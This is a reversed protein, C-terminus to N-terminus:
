DPQFRVLDDIAVSQKSALSQNAAIGTLISYAGDRYGAARKLPDDSKELSFIDRLMHTDAGGHGGENTQPIEIDQPKQWLKQLILTTPEVVATTAAGKVNRSFNHDDSQGSVYATEVVQLELRGGTGNFAVRYGEWPSYTTLHYSMTAGGQYRILAALDDEITIGEGFVNQDRMYGDGPECDLYLSKLEPDASLDLAFPDQKANPNGTAREYDRYDGRRIANERGYFRLDGLAYVQEPRTDLWWNVLDFHHTSKHVFLGGSNLKQRHWRRFYDAGHRTDLLWEFHVSLVRGIAGSMLVEKVKSNRDAYRYNFTVRLNKGTQKITDIIQQCKEADITMPKETIVDCGALMARCIYDHHTSDMTTVIVEEVRMERIMKEFDGPSYCGRKPLLKDQFAQMRLPNRDCLAVLDCHEAYTVTLADRYMTARAGTGVIAFRRKASM